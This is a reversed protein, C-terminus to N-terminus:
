IRDPFVIRSRRTLAISCRGNYWNKAAARIRVREGQSVPQQESRKWITIKTRGSEDALLGVQQIAPSSPAWLDIIRGEVSVTRRPVEELMGIPVVTGPQKKVAEIVAVTASLISKGDAVKEALRRSIAARSGPERVEDHIRAAQQNIEALEDQSLRERPDARGPAEEPHVSAVRTAFERRRERSEQAAVVRSSAERHPILKGQARERTRRKEAEKAEWKEEAELTMRYPHDRTDVEEPAVKERAESDIKAQRELEVTAKLEPEEDVAFQNTRQEVSVKEPISYQSTM